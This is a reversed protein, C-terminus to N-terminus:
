PAVGLVVTHQWLQCTSRAQTQSSMTCHVISIMAEAGYAVTTVHCQHHPELQPSSLAPSAMVNLFVVCMHLWEQYSYSLCAQPLVFGLMFRMTAATGTAAVKM